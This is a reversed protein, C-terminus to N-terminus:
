PAPPMRLEFVRVAEADAVTVFTKGNPSTAIEVTAPYGLVVSAHTKAVLGGPTLVLVEHSLPRNTTM